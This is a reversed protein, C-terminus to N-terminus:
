RRVPAALPSRDLFRGGGFRGVLSGQESSQWIGDTNGDNWQYQDGGLSSPNGFDLYRGALPAYSRASGARVTLRSLPTLALGVRGSLSNWAIRDGHAFDGAVGANATLWSAITITDQVYASVSQLRAHSEPAGTLVVVFAPVGKATILNVGSPASFRNRM